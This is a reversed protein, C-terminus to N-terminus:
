SLKRYRFEETKNSMRKQITFYNNWAPCIPHYECWDCLKSKQPHFKETAEIKKILELIEKKINEIHEDTKTSCIKTDHALYHWVLCVKKDKGYIEKIAMSYIALQKDNKIKEKDPLFDATKYDHIEYEGTKENYNLKDIFGILKHEKGGEAEEHILIEIKKEIDLINEDFPHNRMYYNVLFKVGKNFYHEEDFEKKLIALKNKEELWKKSYYKILEEVSPIIDKIINTYLWELTSHVSEGLHAEITKEVEPIIKDIYKFKFKLPCQEFTSIRSYSYTVM